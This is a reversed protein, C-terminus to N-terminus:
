ALKKNKKPTANIDLAPLADLAGTVDLLQPDTYVQMTLKIDSHRLAAQATRPGVKAKSLHTAFCVRLAHFDITRGSEDELEIGAFALDKKFTKLNPIVFLKDEPDLKKQQIYDGIESAIDQRLPM